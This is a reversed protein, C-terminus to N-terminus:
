ENGDFLDRVSLSEWTRPELFRRDLVPAVRVAELRRLLDYSERCSVCRIPALHPWPPVFLVKVALGCYKRTNSSEGGLYRMAIRSVQVM